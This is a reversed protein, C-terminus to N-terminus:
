GVFLQPMAADVAKTAERWQEQGRPDEPFMRDFVIEVAKEYHTKYLKGSVKERMFIRLTETVGLIECEDLFTRLLAKPLEPTQDAIKKSLVMVKVASVDALAVEVDGAKAMKVADKEKPM